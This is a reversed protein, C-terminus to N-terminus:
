RVIVKKRTGDINVIYLGKRAPIITEGVSLYKAAYLSGTLTYIRLRSTANGSEVNVRIFGNGSTIKIQNKSAEPTSIATAKNITFNVMNSAQSYNNDGAFTVRVTYKGEATPVTTTYTDNSTGQLKYETITPLGVPSTVITPNPTEPLTIDSQSVSVTATLLIGNFRVQVDQIVLHYNTGDTPTFVMRFLNGNQPESPVYTSNAFSFTGEGSQGSFTAKSLDKGLDLTVFVPFVVNEPERQTKSDAYLWENNGDWLEGADRVLRIWQNGPMTDYRLYLNEWPQGDDPNYNTILSQIHHAYEHMLVPPNWGPMMHIYSGAYYAAYSPSGTPIAIIADM